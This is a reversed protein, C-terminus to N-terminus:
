IGVKMPDLEILPRTRKQMITCFKLFLMNQRHGSITMLNWVAYKEGTVYVNLGKKGQCVYGPIADNRPPM